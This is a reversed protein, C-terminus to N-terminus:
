THNGFDSAQNDDSKIDNADAQLDLDEGIYTAFSLFLVIYYSAVCEVLALNSYRNTGHICCM